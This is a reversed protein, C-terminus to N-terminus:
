ILKPGWSATRVPAEFEHLRCLRARMPEGRSPTWTIMGAYARRTPELIQEPAPNAAAQPLPARGLYRAPTAAAAAQPVSSSHEIRSAAPYPASTLFM